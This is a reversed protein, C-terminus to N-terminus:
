WDTLTESPLADLGESIVTEYGALSSVAPTPGATSLGAPVVACGTLALAVVTTTVISTIRSHANM